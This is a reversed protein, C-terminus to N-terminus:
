VLLGVTDVLNRDGHRVEALTRELMSRRRTRHTHMNRSLLSLLRTDM